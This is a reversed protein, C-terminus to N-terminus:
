MARSSDWNPSGPTSSSTWGFKKEIWEAAGEAKLKGVAAQGRAEDRARVLAKIQKAGLGRAIDGQFPEV